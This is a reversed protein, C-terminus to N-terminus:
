WKYTTARLVFCKLMATTWTKHQQAANNLNGGEWYGGPWLWDLLAPSIKWIQLFIIRAPGQQCRLGSLSVRSWGSIFLFHHSTQWREGWLSCRVRMIRPNFHAWRWIILYDSQQSPPSVTVSACTGGCWQSPFHNTKQNWNKTSYEAKVTVRKAWHSIWTLM